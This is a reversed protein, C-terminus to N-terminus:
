SEHAEPRPDRESRDAAPPEVMSARMLAKGFFSWCGPASAKVRSCQVFSSCAGVWAVRHRGTWARHRGTM